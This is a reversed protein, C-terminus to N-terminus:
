DSWGDGGDGDRRCEPYFVFCFPSKGFSAEYRPFNLKSGVDDGLLATYITRTLPRDAKYFQAAQGDFVADIQTATARFEGCLQAFRAGSGGFQFSM